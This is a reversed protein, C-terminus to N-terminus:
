LVVEAGSESSRYWGDIVRMVQLAREASCDPLQGAMMRTVVHEQLSAEPPEGVEDLTADSAVTEGDVLEFRTMRSGAPRHADIVAGGHEGYVDIQWCSENFSNWALEVNLRTGGALTVAGSAFDDVQSRSIHGHHTFGSVRQATYDDSLWMALDLMHPGLDILAGGGSEEMSLNWREYGSAPFTVQRLYRARLYYIEGLDGSEILKKLYFIDPGFFQWRFNMVISLTRDNRKAADTMSEADALTTAMPKECLVNHGADLAEITVRAHLNNPLCVVVLDLDQLQLLERYDQLRHEVGYNAACMAVREDDIDAIAAIEVGAISSFGRLHTESIFGLGVVGVKFM